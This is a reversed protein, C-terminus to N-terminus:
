EAACDDETALAIKRSRLQKYDPKVWTPDQITLPTSQAILGSERWLQNLILTLTAAGDAMRDKALNLQKAAGAATRGYRTDNTLIENLKGISREIGLLVDDMLAGSFQKLFAPDKLLQEARLQVDRRISVEDTIITNEFYSHIGKNGSHQGDFNESTHLPQSLDGIYHTMAGAFELASKMDGMKFSNLSMAYLQRIRWPATGNILITKESYKKVAQSYSAPFNIIQNYNEPTYYADAQFWHTPSEQTKTSSGKWIRDPVTSLQRLPQLNARWFAQGDTTLQGGVYAIIQHGKAGWARAKSCVSFAILTLILQNLVKKLM